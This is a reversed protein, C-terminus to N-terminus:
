RALAGRGEPPDAPQRNSRVLGPPLQGYIVTLTDALLLHPTPTGTVLRAVFKGPYAPLDRMVFWGVLATKTPRPTCNARRSSTSSRIPWARAIACIVFSNRYSRDRDSM